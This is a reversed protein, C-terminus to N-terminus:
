RRENVQRLNESYRFRYGRGFGYRTCLIYASDGLAHIKDFLRTRSIRVCPETLLMSTEKVLYFITVSKLDFSLLFLSYLPYRFSSVM